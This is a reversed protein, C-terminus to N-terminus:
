FNTDPGAPGRGGSHLYSAKADVQWIEIFANRLPEGSSSRLRGTLHTIEGVAPTISDNVLLLDNDTDLPLKDPYFPGETMSATQALAQAFVGRTTFMAAGLTMTQFFSRRNVSPYSGM